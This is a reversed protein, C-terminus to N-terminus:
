LLPRCVHKTLSQLGSTHEESRTRANAQANGARSELGANARVAGNAHPNGFRGARLEGGNLTRVTSSAARTSPATRAMVARSQVLDSTRRTPFSQLAEM